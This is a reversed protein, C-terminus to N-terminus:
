DGAAQKELAMARLNCALTMFRTDGSDIAARHCEAAYTLALYVQGLALRHTGAALCYFAYANSTARGAPLATLAKESREFSQEAEDYRELLSAVFATYIYQHVRLVPSASLNEVAELVDQALPADHYGFLYIFAMNHAAMVRNGVIGETEFEAVAVRYCDLAPDLRRLQQYTLGMNYYVTGKLSARMHEDCSALMDEARQFAELATRGDGKERHILGQWVAIKARQNPDDPCVAVAQDILTAAEMLRNRARAIRAGLLWYGSAGDSPGKEWLDWAEDLRGGEFAAQVRDM